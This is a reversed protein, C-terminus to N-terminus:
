TKNQNIKETQLHILIGELRAGARKYKFKLIRVLYGRKIAREATKEGTLVLRVKKCTMSLKLLTDDHCYDYM